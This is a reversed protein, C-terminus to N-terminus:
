NCGEQANCVQTNAQCSVLPQKDIMPGMRSQLTSKQREFLIRPLATAQLHLLKKAQNIRLVSFAVGDADSNFYPGRQIKTRRCYFSRNQISCNRRRSGTNEM